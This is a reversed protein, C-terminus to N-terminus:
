RVTLTGTMFEHGPVACILEYSGPALDVPVRVGQRAPLEVDIATGEVTFTHRFLDQNDVFVTAGADVSLEAPFRAEHVPAIVDGPEATEGDTGLTAVGAVVVVVGLLGLSVVALRRASDDSASRWAPIVAAIAIIRGFVGVMTHTWDVGSEPHPLHDMAFPVTGLLMVVSTIGLVGVGVKPWRRLLALGVITLVAGVALPPIIESILMFFIVDVAAVFGVAWALVRRWATNDQSRAPTGHPDTRHPELPRPTTATMLKGKLETRESQTM